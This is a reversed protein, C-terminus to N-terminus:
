RLERVAALDLHYVHVSGRTFVQSIGPLGAIDQLGPALTFTDGGTWHEPSGDAGIPPAEEDVYVWHVNLRTLLKRVRPNTPYERFDELLRYTYPAVATGLTQDNVVPIGKEVYLYTSGDNASNMVRQGPKVHRALYDFAAQDEGTVRGLDQRGYRTALNTVDLRMYTLGPLLGYLLGALVVLVAAFWPARVAGSRVAPARRLWSALLRATLVVGVAALVPVLLYLNSWIRVMANYFFATVVSTPGQGPHVWELVVIVVWVLWALVLGLARRALVAAVVGLGMLVVAAWQPRGAITPDFGGYPLELTTRVADWVPTPASDPPFGATDGAVHLSPLLVPIAVIVAVVAAGIVPLLQRTFRRWGGRLAFDGIWWLVLTVGITVIASPHLTVLGAVGVGAAVAAPWDNKRLALLAALAGPALAFAAANPLVGGEDALAFVPRYLGVAVIAAIGAGLMALPSGVKATLLARYALAAVAVALAVAFLVVSVANLGEVANGAIGGTAAALLHMGSPYFQVPHGSALDVPLLQWPAGHGTRMIYSTLETHVITDHEQPVTALGGLSALWTRVGYGIGALTMLLGLVHVALTAPTRPRRPVDAPANRRSRRALVWWLGGLAWLVATVVLLAQWGFPAGVAACGEAVLTALGISAAPAIAFVWFWRRVTLALLLGTGPLVVVALATLLLLADHVTM